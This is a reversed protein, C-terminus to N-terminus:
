AAERLEGDLLRRVGRLLGEATFPKQLFAAESGLLGQHIIANDTYGSMFLVRAQPHLRSIARALEPGNMAPLMVDVLLLDLRAAHEHVRSIAEGPAGAELVTYGNLRLIEAVVNRVRADDEVLLLTETGRAPLDVSRNAAPDVAEDVCPLYVKFVSGVGVESYLEIHGGGQQVIGHVTSLGLGTGKGVEKTTFFPEFIRAQTEPDMGCGSDSVALVVHRGPRASPHDRAYPDDLEVNGTEITLSGGSPMADRANVVLNVLVQEIQGPDAKIRGLDGAPVTRLDIDAGILRRLMRDMNTVISNLDLVRPALVQQRSFILLQRTLSAAREAAGLVEEADQMAPHDPTFRRQMLQTYGIIATLLNNFDHAVGAALRGVAEMKQAHRLQAESKRLADETQKRKSREEAEALARRVSPGLRSLRQKLVYDTAGNRVSEVAAEEGLTGSIIIFPIDPACARAIGLASAGDFGPLAYDSLILDCDGRQVAATFDERTAVREVAVLLGEAELRAQILEADNPDDELHLIRVPSQVEAEAM